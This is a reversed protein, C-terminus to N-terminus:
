GGATGVPPLSPATQTQGRVVSPNLLLGAAPAKSPVVKGGFGASTSAAKSGIVWKGYKANVTVSTHRVGRSIAASFATAYQSFLQNLLEVPSEFPRSTVLLILYAGQYSVPPTASGVSAAAVAKEVAPGVQTLQPSTYCGLAGNSSAAGQQISYKGVLSSFSAGNKLLGEVHSATARSRVFIGSLCSQRTTAPHAKAYATLGETTLSVHAVHAALADEDLQLQVFSGTLEAGLGNAISAGTGGCQSQSLESQFAAIVQQQALARASAPESIGASAVVSRAVKADILNTLVFAAFSSDYTDQGAGELRYGTSSSRELLCRFGSNGSAARLANDLQSPSIVATGVKAAYPSWQLNCASAGLAVAVLLAVPGFLRSTIRKM